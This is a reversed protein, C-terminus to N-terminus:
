ETICEFKDCAPQSPRVAYHCVQKKGWTRVICVCYCWNPVNPNPYCHKCNRCRLATTMEEAKRAKEEEVRRKLESKLQETTYDQLEM